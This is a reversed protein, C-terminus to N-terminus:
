EEEHAKFPGTKPKLPLRRDLEEREWKDHTTLLQNGTSVLQALLTIEHTLRALGEAQRVRDIGMYERWEKDRESIADLFQKDRSISSNIFMTDRHEDRADQLKGRQWIYGLVIVVM